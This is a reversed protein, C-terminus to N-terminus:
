ENTLISAIVDEDQCKYRNDASYYRPRNGYCGDHEAPLATMVPLMFGINDNIFFNYLRRLTAARTVSDMSVFTAMDDGHRGSWDLHVFVNRAISRYDDHWLLAWCWDGPNKYWRSFCANQEIFGDSNVGVGGEIFDFMQLYGSDTINNTQAGIVISMGRAAAYTRVEAIIEPLHSNKLTRADQMYVQGFLFSQIDNDIAEKMIQTVYRRYSAKQLTPVCSRPGWRDNSGSKCMKKFNFKKDKVTDRYKEQTHIAEAIFMNYIVPGRTIGSKIKNIKEWNPADLWTEISRHLYYCPLRNIMTINHKEDGYGSLLGDTVCGERKMRDMNPPPPVPQPLVPQPVHKLETRESLRQYRLEIFDDMVIESQLAVDGWMQSVVITQLILYITITIGIIVFCSWIIIPLIARRLIKTLQGIAKVQHYKHKFKKM